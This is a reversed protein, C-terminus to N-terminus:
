LVGKWLGIYQGVNAKMDFTSKLVMHAQHRSESLREASLSACEIVEQAFTEANLECARCLDFRSATDMLGPSAAVVAPLGMAMSELCSISFGERLSPMVFVDSLALLDPIDNRRGLFYVRDALGLRAVEVRETQKADECGIHLLVWYEPLKMLVEFLFLHNKIVSCNGVCVMVKKERSLGLDGRTLGGIADRSTDIWNWVLNPEYGYRMENRQVMEGCAVIRIGLGRLMRMQLCRRFKRWAGYVFVNHITTVVPRVGSLRCIVCHVFRWGEPHVQVADFHSAKLFRCLRWCYGFDFHRGRRRPIHHVVFGAARMNKAYPGLEPMTAVIHTEVGQERLFRAAAVWM